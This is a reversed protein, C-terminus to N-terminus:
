KRLLYVILFANKGKNEVAGIAKKFSNEKTMIM